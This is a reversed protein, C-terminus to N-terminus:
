FLRGMTTLFTLIVMIILILPQVWWGIFVFFLVLATAVAMFLLARSRNTGSENGYLFFSGLCMLILSLSTVLIVILSSGTAIPLVYIGCTSERDPSPYMSFVSANVFIFSGLDINGPGVMQQVTTSEGPALQVFELKSDPFQATSVEIRISPSLLQDTANSVKISVIGNETKGLFVPCNLGRLPASARKMFGYSTSEYDAWVALLSLLLGIFIGTLTLTVSVFPKPQFAKKQNM